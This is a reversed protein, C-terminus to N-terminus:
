ADVYTAKRVVSLSKFPAIIEDSTWHAPDDHNVAFCRASELPEPGHSWSDQAIDIVIYERKTERREKWPDDRGGGVYIVIDGVNIM